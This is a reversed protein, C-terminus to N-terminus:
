SIFSFHQVGCRGFPGDLLGLLGPVALVNVISMRVAPLIKIDIAVTVRELNVSRSPAFHIPRGTLDALENIRTGDM